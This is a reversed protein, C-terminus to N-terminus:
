LALLQNVLFFTDSFSYLRYAKVAYYEFVILGLLSVATDLSIALKSKPAIFGAALSLIVIILVSTLTSVPLRSNLFPLTVIMTVASAIFLKRVIDGYYHAMENKERDM